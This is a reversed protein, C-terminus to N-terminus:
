QNEERRTDTDHDPQRDTDRDWERQAWRDLLEGAREAPSTM